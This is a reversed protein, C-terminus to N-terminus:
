LSTLVTLLRTEFKQLFYVEMWVWPGGHGHESVGGVPVNDHLRVEGVDFIM